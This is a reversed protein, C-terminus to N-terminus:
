YFVQKAESALIFSDSKHGVRNLDVLVYGLEDIQVNANNQVLDCKFVLHHPVIFAYYRNPLISCLQLKEYPKHCMIM